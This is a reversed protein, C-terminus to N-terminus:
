LGAAKRLLDEATALEAVIRAAPRVSSVLGVAQGAYVPAVSVDGDARASVVQDSLATLAAPQRELEDERGAWTDTVGNVLARGGFERPWALRQALDFVRTYVTDTLEAGVMAERAHPGTDAETATAFASGVWAGVAGAALVAAVGRATAIGGAAIVPADIEELVAQLLPLTAVQNRGHGGAEAGRAVLVDVGIADADRADDLTGVQTAVTIGADHLGAVWDSLEGGYSVSVLAPGAAVVLPLIDAPDGVSWGILGVGFPKGASAAESLEQEIWAPDASTGIGVMGLAGAASVARALRGGAVGAMPASVVPIEIQLHDTLWTRM